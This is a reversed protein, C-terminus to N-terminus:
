IVGDARLQKLEEPSTGLYDSLVDDTHEGIEPAPTRISVPTKTFRLPTTVWNWPGLVPHEQRQIYENALTKAPRDRGPRDARERPHRDLRARTRRAGMGPYTIRAFAEDFIAILERRNAERAETSAFRADDVIETLGLVECVVPWFREGYIIMGLATWTGDKCQYWNYLPDNADDRPM